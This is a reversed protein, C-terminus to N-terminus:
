ARALAALLPHVIRGDDDLSRRRRREGGAPTRSRVRRGARLVVQGWGVELGAAAWPEDAATTVLITLLWERGDDPPATWGPVRRPRASAPGSPRCRCRRRRRRARRRGHGGVDRDALRPRPCDQRNEVAITGTAVTDDAAAFRVPAAIQRHEFLAPKPGAIRGSSGTAHM